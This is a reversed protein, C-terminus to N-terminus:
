QGHCKKYKRGSGCPCSDNRGIKSRKTSAEIAQRLNAPRPTDHTLRELRANPQWDYDLKFGFRLSQDSPHLCVGFWTKAKQSYKRVECHRRLRAEARDVPDTSCHVTFGRNPSDFGLSLDHTEGDRRAMQAARDIGTSAEITAKESMALLL